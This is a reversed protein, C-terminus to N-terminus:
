GANPHHALLEELVERAQDPDLHEVRDHIEGLIRRAPAPDAEERTLRHMRFSNHIGAVGAGFLLLAAPIPSVEGLVVLLTKLLLKAHPHHHHKSKLVDDHIRGLRPDRFGSSPARLKARWSSLVMGRHDRAARRAESGPDSVLLM